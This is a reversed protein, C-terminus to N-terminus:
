GIQFARRGGQFASKSSQQACKKAQKKEHKIQQEITMKKPDPAAGGELAAVDARLQTIKEQNKKTQETLLETGEIASHMKKTTEGLSDKLTDIWAAKKALVKNIGRYKAARITQQVVKIAAKKSLKGLKKKFSSGHTMKKFYREKNRNLRARMDIKTQEALGHKEVNMRAVKAELTATLVKMAPPIPASALAADENSEALETKPAVLKELADMAKRRSAEEQFMKAGDSQDDLTHVAADNDQRTATASVLMAAVVVLTAAIRM